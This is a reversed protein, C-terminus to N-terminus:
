ASDSGDEIGARVARLGDGLAQQYLWLDGGFAQMRFGQEVLWIANEVGLSMFGGIKNHKRCASSVAAIAEKFKPHEFQGAIGLSGSLDFQGIWLVDIGNVAAIADVNELGVATEIQAILMQQSNASEMTAFIDGGRYDDHAIGFAAGRRGAPPYKASRVVTEAQEVSEVMPAMVGMAGMDLVRAIFHYQTAPIRVMPVISSSTTAVLMRITEVSWGTHEMDFIVFEAGAEAAIRAIGTTNFEFVFTGLSVGGAALSNRVPNERM